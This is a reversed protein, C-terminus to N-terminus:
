LWRGGILDLRQDLRQGASGLAYETRNRWRGADLGPGSDLDEVVDECRRNEPPPGTLAGLAELALLAVGILPRAALTPARPQETGEQGAGQHQQDNRDAGQHEGLHVPGPRISRLLGRLGSLKSSLGFRIEPGAPEPLRQQQAHRRVPGRRRRQGTGREDLSQLPCSTHGGVEAALGTRDIRNRDARVTSGDGGPAGVLGNDQPVERGAPAQMRKATVAIRDVRDGEVM